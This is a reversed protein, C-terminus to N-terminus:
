LSVDYTGAVTSSETLQVGSSLTVVARVHFTDPFGGKGGDSGFVMATAVFEMGFIMHVGFSVGGASISIVPSALVYCPVGTDEANRFIMKYAKTTDALYTSGTYYYYDSKLTTIATGATTTYPSTVLLTSTSSSM